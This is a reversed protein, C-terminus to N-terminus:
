RNYFARKGNNGIREREERSYMYLYKTQPTAGIGPLESIHQYFYKILTECVKESIEEPSDEDIHLYGEKVKRTDELVEWGTETFKIKCDGGFYSDARLIIETAKMKIVQAAKGNSENKININYHVIYM